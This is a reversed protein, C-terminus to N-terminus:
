EDDEEKSPPGTRPRGRPTRPMEFKKPTETIQTQAGTGYALLTMEFDKSQSRILGYPHIDKYIWTDTVGGADQYQFHKTTFTGAPVKIKETGKEVLKGKASEESKPSQRPTQVPMEMAPQDGSKIIIRKVNKRDDPNGSVLMKTVM